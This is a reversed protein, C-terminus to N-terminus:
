TYMTVCVQVRDLLQQIAQKIAYDDLSSDQPVSLILSCEPDQQYRAVASRLKNMAPQMKTRKLMKGSPLQKLANQLESLELIVAASAKESKNQINILVECKAHLSALLAAQKLITKNLAGIEEFAQEVTKRKKTNTKRKSSTVVATEPM